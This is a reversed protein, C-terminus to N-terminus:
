QLQRWGLRTPADLTRANKGQEVGTGGAPRSSVLKYDSAFPQNAKAPIFLMPDKGTSVRSVNAIDGGSSSFYSDGNTDFLPQKQYPKGSSADLITLYNAAPTASPECSEDSSSTMSGLMPKITPIVVLRKDLVRSNALGREGPDPLNFFWGRKSGTGVYNFLASSSSTTTMYRGTTASQNTLQTIEFLSTRGGSTSDPVRTGGSLTITGAGTAYNFSVAVNTNDWVSYITQVATSAPDTPTLDRGTGFVLNIGHITTTGDSVRNWSWTPATMIAQPQATAGPPSAPPDGRAVFLPNGSFAVSWSSPTASTLDFKWLNGKVDGAYVVDAKDDGNLDIVQPHSLGNGGGVTADATLKVLERDGDLYQILLVATENTSNVGNGLLLAWRNNNLQTIQVVRASNASDQTPPSYMHGIDSWDAAPLGVAASTTFTDTKDTIVMNAIDTASASAIGAPNTVDLVFFGKGGGALTGVLATKWTTLDSKFDGSFPKGDVFYRHAYAPDTLTKLNAIVGRPIYALKEAGDSLTTTGGSQTTSVAFGHLMGDNAGIYVMPLRNAQAQRFTPYGNRVYGMNPKAVYWPVSNVIDGLRNTRSRLAGGNSVEQSREGRLYVLPVLAPNSAGMATLGQVEATYATQQTSTLDEWNLGKHFEVQQSTSLSGWNFAIGQALSNFSAATADQYQTFIKRNAPTVNDLQNAANWIVTPSVSGSSTLGYGTLDGSWRMANYGAIFALTDSRTSQTSASIAAIPNSTDLLIQNLIESFAAQLEATNTALVYRGRSNVAMHWLDKRTADGGAIANGWNVAGTILGPYDGSYWRAAADWGWRPANTTSPAAGAGFSITYTTLNQWTAPNNRPNWYEDLMYPSASTGYNVSGPVRIIPRVENAIGPQLDTAWYQFAYDAVTSLTTSGFADRYVRTQTNGASTDYSVGDPLTRTIGDANDASGHNTTGTSYSNWEGDTMFIQFSKRCALLPTEQTGPVKAYPNWVGTTTMFEGARKMMDHLPTNSYPQLSNVWTDFNARHTGSFPRIRNEPCNGYWNSVSTGFGRCHWLAQFGVRISDDPVQTTSFSASLAARLAAMRSLGGGADTSSMSGSDDVSVLINPAPERGGNGQPVQSLSLPASWVAGTGICLCLTAFAVPSLLAMRRNIHLLHYM